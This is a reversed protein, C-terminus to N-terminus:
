SKRKPCDDPPSAMEPEGPEAEIECNNRPTAMESVEPPTEVVFSAELEVWSRVENNKVEHLLRFFLEYFQGHEANRTSVDIRKPQWGMQSFQDDLYKKSIGLVAPLRSSVTVMLYGGTALGFYSM